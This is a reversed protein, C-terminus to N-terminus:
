CNESSKAPNAIYDASKTDSYVHARKFVFTTRSKTGRMQCYFIYNAWTSLYILLNAFKIFRFVFFHHVNDAFFLFFIPRCIHLRHDAFTFNEREETTSKYKIEAINCPRQVLFFFYCKYFWESLYLSTRIIPSYFERSFRM